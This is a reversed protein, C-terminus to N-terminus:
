YLRKEKFACYTLLRKFLFQNHFMDLQSLYCIQLFFAYLLTYSPIGYISFYFMYGTPDIGFGIPFCDLDIDRVCQESEHSPVSMEKCFLLPATLCGEWRRSMFHWCECIVPLTTNNNREFRGGCLTQQIYLLTRSYFASPEFAM